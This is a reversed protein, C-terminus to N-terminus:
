FITTTYFIEKYVMNLKDYKEYLYKVTEKFFRKLFAERFRM